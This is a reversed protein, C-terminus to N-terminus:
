KKGYCTVKGDVSAVYLRGQAVAMGDWVPPSAFIVDGPLEGKEYETRARQRWHRTPGEDKADGVYIELAFPDAQWRDLAYRFVPISCASAASAAAMFALLSVLIRKM